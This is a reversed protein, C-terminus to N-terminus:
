PRNPYWRWPFVNLGPPSSNTADCQTKEIPPGSPPPTGDYGTETFALAGRKYVTPDHHSEKWYDVAYLALDLSWLVLGAVPSVFFVKGNLSDYCLRNVKGWMLYHVDGAFYCRGGYRVTLNCGPAGSGQRAPPTPFKWTGFGLDALIWMVWAGSATSLPFYLSRCANVKQTFTWKEFVTEIERLTAQVAKTVNPGCCATALGLADATNTPQNRAYLYLNLGDVYDLPDRSLWKSRGSATRYGCARSGTAIQRSRPGRRSPRGWSRPVCSWARSKVSSTLTRPKVCCSWAASVRDVALSSFRSICVQM